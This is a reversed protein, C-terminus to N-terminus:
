RKELNAFAFGALTGQLIGSLMLFAFLASSKDSSSEMTHMADLAMGSGILGVCSAAPWWGWNKTRNMLLLTQAAIMGLGCGVAVSTLKDVQVILTGLFGGIATSVIWVAWKPDPWRKRLYLAQVIGTAVAGGIGTMLRLRGGDVGLGQVGMDHGIMMGIFAIFAGATNAGLFGFAFKAREGPPVLSGTVSVQHGQHLNTDNQADIAFNQKVVTQNHTNSRVSEVSPFPDRGGLREARACWPCSTLHVGYLHQSNASCAMLDQDAQYLAQQWEAASPRMSPNTHGQDFCRVFLRRIHPPLLEWPPAAPKPSYPGPRSGYVFHGAAIREERLPPNGEGQYLGDFPHTGEMLLSFLLVALAFLDHEVTRDIEAFVRNQLEPPTYEPKGVPCRFILGSQPDQVQFSDTDVLTVLARDNVLVNSENIDGIVYGRDHVTKVAAVLNRATYILYRYSFLPCHARRSAPNFYDIIPRMDQVRGMLYGMMIGRSDDTHLLDKPWAISVHGKDLMPDVPPNALMARLKRRHEDMPRHYIKAVCSQDTPYLYVRAEGGRGLPELGGFDIVEANSQRKLRM